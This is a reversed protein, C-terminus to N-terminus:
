FKVNSWSINWAFLFNRDFVVRCWWILRGHMSMWAFSIYYKWKELRECLIVCMRHVFYFFGVSRNFNALQIERHRFDHYLNCQGIPFFYINSGIGNHVTYLQFNSVKLWFCLWFYLVCVMSWKHFPVRKILCPRTDKSYQLYFVEWVNWIHNVSGFASNFSVPSFHASRFIFLFFANNM